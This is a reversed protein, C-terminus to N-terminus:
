FCLALHFFQECGLLYLIMGSIYCELITLVFFVNSLSACLHSFIIFFLLHTTFVDSHQNYRPPPFSVRPMRSGHKNWKKLQHPTYTHKNKNYKLSYIMNCANKQIYSRDHGDRMTTPLCCLSLAKCTSASM